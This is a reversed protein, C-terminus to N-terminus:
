TRDRDMEYLLEKNEHINGIVECDISPTLTKHNAYCIFEQYPKGKDTVYGFGARQYEIEHIFAPSNMGFHKVIDGEYIEKGNKDNLGTFQQSRNLKEEMTIPEQNNESLGAFVLSGHHKVFGWYHWFGGLYIRFKIERM